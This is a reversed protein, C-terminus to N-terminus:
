TIKLIHKLKRDEENLQDLRTTQIALFKKTLVKKHETNCSIVAYYSEGFNDCVLPKDVTYFTIVM